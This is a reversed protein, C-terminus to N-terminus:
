RWISRRRAQRPARHSHRQVPPMRHRALAFRPRHWAHAFRPRRRALAFGGGALAGLAAVTIAIAAIPPSTNATDDLTGAVDRRGPRPPASTSSATATASPAPSSGGKQRAHRTHSRSLAALTPTASQVEVVPAFTPDPSGASAPPPAASRTPSPGASPPVSPTRSPKPSPKSPRPSPTPTPTATPTASSTPTPTATPGGSPTASATASPTDTPAPSSSPAVSSPDASSPAASPAPTSSGPVPAADAPLIVAVTSIRAAPGPQVSASVEGTRAREVTAAATAAGPMCALAAAACATIAGLVTLATRSANRLQGSRVGHPGPVRDRYDASRKPTASPALSEQQGEGVSM